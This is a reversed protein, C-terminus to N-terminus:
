VEGKLIRGDWFNRQSNAALRHNTWDIDVKTYRQLAVDEVLYCKTLFTLSVSVKVWLNVKKHVFYFLLIM